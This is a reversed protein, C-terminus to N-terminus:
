HKKPSLRPIELGELGRLFLSQVLPALTAHTLPGKPRVWTFMWNLMGFLLMAVPKELDAARVDPRLAGIANAFSLVVYREKDLIRERAQSPLFRVDETLVRHSNQAESYELMFRDILAVLRDSPEIGDSLVTDCLEVLRSVHADAISILLENKDRFYHYLTAKSLGCADAVDNMTTGHYGRQAFLGAAGTEILERQNSYNPTRAHTAM